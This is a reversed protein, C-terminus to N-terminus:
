KVLSCPCSIILFPHSADPTVCAISCPTLLKAANSGNWSTSAIHEYTLISSYWCYSLASQSHASHTQTFHGLLLLLRSLGHFKNCITLLPPRDPNLFFHRQFRQRHFYHLHDAFRHLSVKIHM